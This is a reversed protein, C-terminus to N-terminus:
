NLRHFFADMEGVRDQLIENQTKLIIIEKHQANITLALGSIGFFAIVGIIIITTTPEVM